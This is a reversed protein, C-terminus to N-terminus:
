VERKDLFPAIRDLRVVPGDKCVFFPLYQCHGCLGVGCKMNRELSLYIRDKGIGREELERAVFRMMVEPGCVMALATASDATITPLLATVIDVRGHWDPRARDVTVELEIDLRGRWRELERRYLLDRPTRAGYLIAIRRYDQRHDILHYIAPRLPAIGLGGAILIVDRGKAEDLPWGHGYPGRVGLVCGRRLAQLSGTVRGVARITHVLELSRRPDGSISIPVEGAGLAYLMNFQGPVFSFGEPWAVTSDLTLTFTDPTEWGIRQIPLPRPILSDPTRLPALM